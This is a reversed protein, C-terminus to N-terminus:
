LVRNRVLLLLLLTVTSLKRHRIERSLRPWNQTTWRTLQHLCSHPRVSYHNPHIQRLRRRRYHWLRDVPRGPCMVMASVSGLLLTLAVFPLATLRNIKM